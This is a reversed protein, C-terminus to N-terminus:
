DRAFNLGNQNYLSFVDQWFNELRELAPQFAYFFQPLMLGAFRIRSLLISFRFSKKLM